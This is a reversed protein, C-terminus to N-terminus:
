RQFRKVIAEAGSAGEVSAGSEELGVLGKRKLRGREGEGEGDSVGRM